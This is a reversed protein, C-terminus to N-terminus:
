EGASLYSGAGVPGEDGLSMPRNPAAANAPKIASGAPGGRLLQYIYFTGFSFIFTYVM